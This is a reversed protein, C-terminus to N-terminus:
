LESFLSLASLEILSQYRAEPTFPHPSVVIESDTLQYFLVRPMMTETTICFTKYWSQVIRSAM